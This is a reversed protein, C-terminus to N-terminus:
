RRIDRREFVATVVAAAAVVVVAELLDILVVGLSRSRLVELLVAGDFSDGGGGRSGAVRSSLFRFSPVGGVFRRRDDRGDDVGGGGLRFWDDPLLVGLLLVYVVARRVRESLTM